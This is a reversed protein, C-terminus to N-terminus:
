VGNLTQPNIGLSRLKAALEELNESPLDYMTPLTDAPPRPPDTQEVVISQPQMSMM